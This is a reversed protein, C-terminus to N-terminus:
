FKYGVGVNALSIGFGVEGFLTLNENLARRAGVFGSFLFANPSNPRTFSPTNETKEDDTVEIDVSPISAGITFGGYVRWDNLDNSHITPRVGLMITTNDYTETIGANLYTSSGTARAYAAYTGISLNPTIFVEVSASVPPVITRTADAAYTPVLGIGVNAQVQGPKIKYSQAQLTLLSATAILLLAFLNKM